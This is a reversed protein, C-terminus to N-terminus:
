AAEDRILHEARLAQQVAPRELMRAQHDALVPWRGLDIKFFDLWRLVTFLYADAVSYSDNAMWRKGAMQASLQGLRLDIKEEIKAREADSLASHFLGGITKHLESNIFGLASQVRTRELTGNPPAIGAAPFRDAIYQVIAPGELLIEGGEIELAPVYGYPNLQRFDRGDATRKDRGVQVAEFDAGAEFLAIHPSLSCAGQMYFLKM